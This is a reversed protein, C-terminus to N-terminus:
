NTIKEEPQITELGFEHFYALITELPSM